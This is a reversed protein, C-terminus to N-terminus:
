SVWVALCLDDVNSSPIQVDTEIKGHGDDWMWKSEWRARTLLALDRSSKSIDSIFEMDGGCTMGWFGDTGAIVKYSKDKERPIIVSEFGHHEDLFSAMHGLTRTMNTQQANISIIKAECSLITTSDKLTIDWASKHSGGLNKLRGLEEINNYDHDKTKFILETGSYIKGTSDGVWHCEFRDEYIKFITVTTGIGSTDSGSTKEILNEKWKSNALFESWDIEGFLRLYLTKDRFNYRGHGDAVILYDFAEEDCTTNNEVGVLDNEACKKGSYQGVTVFDQGSSAQIEYCNYKKGYEKTTESTFTAM